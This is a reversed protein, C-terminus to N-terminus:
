KLSGTAIIQARTEGVASAIVDGVQIPPKVCLRRCEDMIKKIDASHVARDTKVPLLPAIAGSVKVTSTVIRMPEQYETKAFQEGISCVAGIPSVRGNDERIEIKCGRPCKTCFILKLNGNEGHGFLAQIDEATIKRGPELSKENEKHGDLKCQKKESKMVWQAATYGAQRGRISVEDVTDYIQVVNGCAFVGRQETQMCGDVPIGGAGGLSFGQSSWLETEPILGAAVLLTDCPIYSSREEDPEGDSDFPAITIGRLRKYGHTRLVTYGFRIPIGFDSVCQIYNRLLGSAQQGLIMKVKAGELIIRRAMILGIDGSGLIVVSKGPLYNQCNIMYQAAGAAYIGAPRSGPIHLQGVTRERCGTSIVVAKAKVKCMGTTPGTLTLIHQRGASMHIVTTDTLVDVDSEKIINRWKDAYEPGTMSEGFETIGFGDHICQPLVGGLVGNREAILIRELGTKSAAQAAGMGAPGGGIVVLDYLDNTDQSTM